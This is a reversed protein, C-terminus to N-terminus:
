SRISSVRMLLREWQQVAITKEFHSEFIERARAGMAKCMVEDNKFRRIAAVLEVVHGPQVTAGIEYETIIRAIDGNPDGIFISPRGAAAIGYFKSPVILGELEPLLSVLHIDAVGLSRILAARPQYPKFVVNTLGRASASQRIWHAKHGGGCFLFVYDTEQLLAEAAALITEFEHARGMNGSYGIVFRRELGWESRLANESDTLPRIDRGDAWNHIVCITHKSIGCYNLKAAMREGVVVNLSATRLSRDRFGRLIRGLFRSIAKVGLKEAVEPFLDQVWNVLTARRRRTVWAAVVSILPPDTKAVITTDRTTLRYIAAAATFYFTIYDLTRGFLNQRGFRSTPVRHILVGDLLERPALNAAPDDYRQRSAVVHVRHGSAALHFALDSLLQSTASHDPYFYRNVFLIKM